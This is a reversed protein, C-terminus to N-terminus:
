EEILSRASLYRYPQNKSRFLNLDGYRWYKNTDMIQYKNLYFFNLNYTKKYLRKRSYIFKFYM